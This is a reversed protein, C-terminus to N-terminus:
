IIKENIQFGKEQQNSFIEKREGPHCNFYIPSIQKITKVSAPFDANQSELPFISQSIKGDSEKTRFWSSRGCLHNKENKFYQQILRFKKEKHLQQKYKNSFTQM